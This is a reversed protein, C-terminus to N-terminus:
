QIVGSALDGVARGAQPQGVAAGALTATTQILGRLLANKGEAQQISANNEAEIQQLQMGHLQSRLNFTLNRAQQQMIDSQTGGGSLAGSLRQMLDQGLANQIDITGLTRATEMQSKIQKAQQQYGFARVRTSGMTQMSKIVGETLAAGMSVKQSNTFLKQKAPMPGVFDNSPRRQEKSYFQSFDFM